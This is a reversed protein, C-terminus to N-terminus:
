YIEMDPHHSHSVVLHMCQFCGARQQNLFPLTMIFIMYNNLLSVENSVKTEYSFDAIPRLKTDFLSFPLIKTTQAYCLWKCYGNSAPKHAALTIVSIESLQFIINFIFIDVRLRIKTDLPSFPCKEPSLRLLTISLWEQSDIDIYHLM